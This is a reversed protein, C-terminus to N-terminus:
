RAGSVRPAAPLKGSIIGWNAGTTAQGNKGKKRSARMSVEFKWLLQRFQGPQCQQHGGGEEGDPDDCEVSLRFRLRHLGSLTLAFDRCLM